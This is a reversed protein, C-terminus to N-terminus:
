GEGEHGGDEGRHHRPRCPRDHSGFHANVITDINEQIRGLVADAQEQTLKDEEVLVSLDAEVQELLADEFEGVSFGKAEAVQALTAGDGLEALLEGKDMELVTAAAGLILPAVRCAKRHRDYNGEGPPRIDGEEVRERHREAQEPDLRGAAVAEDIMELRAETVATHLEEESVGLKDAVKALFTQVPGDEGQAARVGTAVGVAMLGLTLVAVTVILIRRMLSVEKDHLGRGM